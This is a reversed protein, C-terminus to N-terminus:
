KCKKIICNQTPINQMRRIHDIELSLGLLNRVGIPMLRKKSINKVINKIFKKGGDITVSAESVRQILLRM